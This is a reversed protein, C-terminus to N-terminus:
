QRGAIRSARIALLEAPFEAVCAHSIAQEEGILIRGDLSVWVHASLTPEDPKIGYHLVSSLGRARLMWHLALGQQFCATRWPLRRSARRVARVIERAASRALSADMGRSSGGLGTTQVVTRFPLLRIALSAMILALMAGLFWSVEILGFRSPRHSPPLASM